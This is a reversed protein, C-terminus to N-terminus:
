EAGTARASRVARWVLDVNPLLFGLCIAPLAPLGSIDGVVVLVLTVALFSTMGFWTWGVRLGFRQAAALFLAFFIVDPPGLFISAAEGPFPSGVSLHEILSPKQAVVYRTPGSAVSWIDVWPILLSVLVVWSLAEFLWLLAFGVLAFCALKAVNFASDFGLLRLGVAAVAAAGPLLLPHHRPRSALPLGLWITATAAPFVLLGVVVSDWNISPAPLQEAIAGYAVLSTVLATLAAARRRTLLPAAGGV